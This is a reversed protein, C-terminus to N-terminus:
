ETSYLLFFGFSSFGYLLVRGFTRRANLSVSDDSIKEFSDNFTSFLVM